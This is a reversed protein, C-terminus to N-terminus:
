RGGENGGPRKTANRYAEPDIQKLAATAAVRADKDPARLMPIIKPVAAKALSGYHGLAVAAEDNVTEDDLYGILMPIIIEPDSHIKGLANIAPEHVVLDGGKVAQILSPVASRAAPGLEGINQAASVRRGNAPSFYIYIGPLQNLAEVLSMRLHSDNTDHFMNDILQPLVRSSVISFAANSAGADQGNLQDRWFVITKGAYLPRRSSGLTLTLLWVMAVLVGFGALVGLGIRVLSKRKM